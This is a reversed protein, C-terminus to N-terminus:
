VLNKILKKETNKNCPSKIIDEEDTKGDREKCSHNENSLQVFQGIHILSKIEIVQIM